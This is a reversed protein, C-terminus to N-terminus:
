YPNMVSGNGPILPQVLLYLGFILLGAGFLALLAVIALSEQGRRRWLFLSLALTIFALVLSGVALPLATNKSLGLPGSPARRPLSEAVTLDFEASLPEMRGPLSLEAVIRWHGAIGLYSGRAIYSGHGEPEAVAVQEGMDHDLMRFHLRIQADNVPQYGQSIDLVNLEFQNEVARIESDGEQHEDSQAAIVSLTLNLNEARRTISFHAWAVFSVLTITLLGLLILFVRKSVRM